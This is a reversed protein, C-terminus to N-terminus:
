WFPTAAGRRSKSSQLLAMFNFGGYRSGVVITSGRVRFDAMESFGNHVEGLGDFDIGIVGVSIVVAAYHERHFPLAIQGIGVVGLGYFEIRSNGRQWLISPNKDKEANKRVM